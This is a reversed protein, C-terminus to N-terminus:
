RSASGAGSLVGTGVGGGSRASDDGFRSGPHCWGAIQVGRITVASPAVLHLAERGRQRQKRRREGSTVLDGSAYSMAAVDDPSLAPYWRLAAPNVLHGGVNVAEAARRKGPAPAAAGILHGRRTGNHDWYWCLSLYLRYAPASDWGLLRLYPCAVVVDRVRVRLM